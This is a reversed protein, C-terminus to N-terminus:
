KKVREAGIGILVGTIFTMLTQAGRMNNNVNFTHQGNLNVNIKGGQTHISMNHGTRDILEKIEGIDEVVGENLKEFDEYNKIM